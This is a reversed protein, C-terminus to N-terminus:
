VLPRSTIGRVGRISCVMTRTEPYLGVVYCTQSSVRSSVTDPAASAGRIPTCHVMSKIQPGISVQSSVKSPVTDPARQM